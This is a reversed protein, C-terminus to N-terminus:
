AVGIRLRLESELDQLETHNHDVSWKHPLFKPHMTTVFNSRWMKEFQLLGGNELMHAVVKLGHPSYKDCPVRIDMDVAQRLLSNDLLDVGYYNKVIEELHQRRETPIKDGFKLLAKASSRVKALDPDQRFHVDEESGIPANCLVALRQRLVGDFVGSRQHCSVCLLLIDHSRHNKLLMPFHKRYEHPIVCKRVYSEPAGCVVCINDKEQLYYDEESEPRGAPEFRLRVTLPDDAVKEGIGKEIYWEAKKKDCTCLLQGDPARLQCSHYLPKKRLSYSRTADSKSESKQSGNQNHQGRKSTTSVKPSATATYRLDVIGQTVSLVKRQFDEVLDRGASPARSLMRHLVLETFIDVASIADNAAYEIQDPALVDREWDSCRISTTKNLSKHCVAEYLRKLGYSSLHQFKQSRMAVNRLDVCGVVQLGYHNFLKLADEAIGVGFKKVSQDALLEKLTEPLNKDKFKCLRFLVCTGQQTAIQLLAVPQSQRSKTVWECDLGMTKISSLDELLLEHARDWEEVCNIIVIHSKTRHLTALVEDDVLSSVALNSAFHSRILNLVDTKKQIFLYAGGLAGLSCVLVAALKRKDVSVFSEAM